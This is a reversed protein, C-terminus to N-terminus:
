LRDREGRLVAAISDELHSLRQHVWLGAAVAGGGMGGPVTDGVPRREYIVHAMSPDNWERADLDRLLHRLTDENCHVDAARVVVYIQGGDDGELIVVGDPVQKAEALSGLAAYPQGTADSMMRRLPSEHEPTPEPHFLDSQDNM